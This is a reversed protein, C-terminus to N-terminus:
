RQAQEASWREGHKAIVLQAVTYVTAAVVALGSDILVTM